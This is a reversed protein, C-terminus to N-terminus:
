YWSMDSPITARIFRFTKFVPIANPAKLDARFAELKDFCWFIAQEKADFDWESTDYQTTCTVEKEFGEDDAWTVSWTVNRIDEKAM